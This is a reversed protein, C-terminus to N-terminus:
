RVDVVDVWGVAIINVDTRGGEYLQKGGTM